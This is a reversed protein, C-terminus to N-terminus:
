AYDYLYYSYMHDFIPYNSIITKTDVVAMLRSFVKGAIPIKKFPNFLGGATYRRKLLKFKHKSLFDDLFERSFFNIHGPPSYMHWRIGAKELMNAKFTQFSPIMVVLIGQPAIIKKLNYLFQKPNTLHELIAYATVVDFKSDFQTETSDIQLVSLGRSKAINAAPESLEVGVKIMNDPWHLLFDGTNCGFDLISEPLGKFLYSIINKESDWYRSRRFLNDVKKKSYM